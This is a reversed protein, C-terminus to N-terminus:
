RGTAKAKIQIQCPRGQQPREKDLRISELNNRIGPQYKQPQYKDVSNIGGNQGGFALQKTRMQELYKLIPLVPCKSSTPVRFVLKQNTEM